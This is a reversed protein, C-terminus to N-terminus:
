PSQRRRRIEVGVLVLVTLATLGTVVLGATLGAPWFRLEVVHDGADLWLGQLAIDTQYLAADRGDVRAHWGPNWVESVVLFRRRAAHTTVRLGGNGSERVTVADAADHPSPGSEAGLVVATERVDADLVADTMAAEDTVTQVADVFFARQLFRDNRYVYVPGKTMGQYFVFQPQDEYVHALTFGSPAPDVPRPSVVYRVNLAALLDPRAISPVDIWVVPRPAAPRGTALVDLYTQYRKDNFGTYGTILELGLPVAMAYTPPSRSLPAIRFPDSGPRLSSLYEADLPLDIPAATRLYRNAWWTGELAVLGILLVATALRSRHTRAADRVVDLGVGALGFVFFATVVPQARSGSL